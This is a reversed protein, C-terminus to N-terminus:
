TRLYIQFDGDKYVEFSEEEVEITEKKEYQFKISKKIENDNKIEIPKIGILEQLKQFDKILYDDDFLDNKVFELKTSLQNLLSIDSFQAPFNENPNAKLLKIFEKLVITEESNLILKLDDNKIEFCINNKSEEVFVVDGYDVMIECYKEVITHEKLHTNKDKVSIKTSM